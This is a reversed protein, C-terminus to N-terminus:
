TMRLANRFRFAMTFDKVKFTADDEDKAIQRLQTQHKKAFNTDDSIVNFGDKLAQRVMLNRMKIVLEESAPRWVSNDMMARLSDKNIRKTRGKSRKVQKIAWTTKGSGQLGITVTLTPM